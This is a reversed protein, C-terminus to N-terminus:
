PVGSDGVKSYGRKEVFEMSICKGLSLTSCIEDTTICRDSRILEDVWCINASMATYPCDRQLKDHFEARGTEAGKVQRALNQTSSTDVIAESNV